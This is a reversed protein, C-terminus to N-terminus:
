TIKGFLLAFNGVQYVGISEYLKQAPLNNEGTFIILKRMGHIDKIDSLLKLIVSKSYGKKRFNPHTYVGGLQGMDLAKANLDAISVLQGKLFFGWIIKKRCKDIFIELLQEDNLDNPFGEEVLYDLRLPKWQSYDDDTLLRVNPQPLSSIKSLDVQYLIEKSTFTEKQIVKKDKLFQWFIHCFEWDGVLGTLPIGEEICSTLVLDFVAERIISQILLSGKKALCFVAVIENSSRILKFNGSYPAESLMVGYNEFNGLLFLSYNEHRKLFAIMEDQNSSSIKEVELPHQSKILDNINKLHVYEDPYALGFKECLVSVDHYDRERLPYGSHFKVLHDPSICSVICNGIKGTGTLSEEPYKLGDIVNGHDDFVFVHFDIEHGLDDGFVFNWENDRRVEKYGQTELLKLVNEVNKSEIAIDLDGHPRTQTGILADVGWGGDIWIKVGIENLENCFKTVDNMTMLKRTDIKKVMLFHRVDKDGNCDRHFDSICQFGAKAYVHKARANSEEPDIFFTDIFSDVKEQIFKTFAELTPSALGKGYYNRNGIMFDISFTRGNKSLNERWVDVLDTQTPFIESTMVLCYPENNVLGIWYDFIGDFYPSPEKRGNIFILIDKRHNQSNDWFEKVHPEELWQFINEKHEPSAKKFHISAKNSM